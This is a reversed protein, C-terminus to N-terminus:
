HGESKRSLSRILAGGQKAQFDCARASEEIGDERGLQYGDQFAPRDANATAGNTGIHPYKKAFWEEFRQRVKEEEAM